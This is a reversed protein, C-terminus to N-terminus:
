LLASLARDLRAASGKSLGAVHMTIDHATKAYRYGKPGMEVDFGDHRATAETYFRYGHFSELINHEVQIPGEADNQLIALAARITDCSTTVTRVVNNNRDVTETTLTIIHKM